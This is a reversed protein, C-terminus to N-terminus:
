RLRLTRKALERLKGSILLGFGKSGLVHRDREALCVGRVGEGKLGSLICTWMVRWSRTRRAAQATVWTSITRGFIPDHGPDPLKLATRRAIM